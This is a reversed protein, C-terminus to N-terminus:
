GNSGYPDDSGEAAHKAALATPATVVALAISVLVLGIVARVAVSKIPLWAAALLLLPALSVVLLNAWTVGPDPYFRGGTFLGALLGTAVIAVGPSVLTRYRPGSKSLPGAFIAASGTAAAAAIGYVGVIRLNSSMVLVAASGLTFSFALIVALPTLREEVLTAVLALLFGVVAAGVSFLTAAGASVGGPVLPRVVGFAVAGAVIAVPWRWREPLLTSLVGVLTLPMALWFLWDTGDQPPLKPAGMLVYGVIFGAGMALPLAWAWRRWYGIVAIITSILLPALLVRLLEDPTVM